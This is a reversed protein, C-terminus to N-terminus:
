SAPQTLGVEIEKLFQIIEAASESFEKKADARNSVAWDLVKIALDGKERNRDPGNPLNIVNSAEESFRVPYYGEFSPKSFVRFSSTPWSPFKKALRQIVSEGEADGDIAVWAKGQYTPELHIFVFLRLFDDFVLEVRNTGGASVTKLRACLKPTFNPILFDRIIREATSEELILYGAWLDLDHLEYGLENLVNLRAGADTVEYVTSTPIQNELKMSVHFLKSDTHGCLQKVAINSHTSIFFQNDASKSAILNLLVKLAKPHIDNEPEEILFIKNKASCLSAIFGLLSTTGEGMQDVPILTDDSILLGGKKGQGELICTINFGFFEKCLERFERFPKSDPNILQDLRSYLCSLDERITRANTKNIQESFAAPKRRSLFPYILNHPEVTQFVPISCDQRQTPTPWFNASGFGKSTGIAHFSASNGTFNINQFRTGIFSENSVMSFEIDIESTQSQHRSNAGFFINAFNDKSPQLIYISQLLTSKGSNNQGTIVNIGKSFFISDSDPFTKINRVRLSHIKM